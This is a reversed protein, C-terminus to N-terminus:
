PKERIPREIERKINKRDRETKGGWIGFPQDTELAWTLCPIREVCSM